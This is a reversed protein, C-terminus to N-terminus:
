KVSPFSSSELPSTVQKLDCLEELDIEVGFGLSGSMPDERGSFDWPTKRGQPAGSAQLVTVQFILSKLLFNSRPPVQTM